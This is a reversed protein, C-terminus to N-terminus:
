KSINIREKKVGIALLQEEAEQNALWTILTNKRILNRFNPYYLTGMGQFNTMDITIPQDPPLSDIFQNLAKTSEEDVSLSGYIKFVIPNKSVQKIPLPYEFYQELLEIYRVQEDQPYSDYLLKFLPDLIYYYSAQTKRSPSWCHITDGNINMVLSIGDLGMESKHRIANQFKSIGEKLEQVQASPLKIKKSWRAQIQGPWPFAEKSLTIEAANGKEEIILTSFPIFSPEFKVQFQMRDKIVTPTCSFLFGISLLCFFITKMRKNALLMSIFWVIWKVANLESM